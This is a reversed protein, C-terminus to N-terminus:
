EKNKEKLCIAVMPSMTHRRNFCMTNSLRRYPRCSLFFFFFSEATKGESSKDPVWSSCFGRSKTCFQVNQMNALQWCSKSQFVNSTDPQVCLEESYCLLKLEAAGLKKPCGSLKEWFQWEIKALTTQTEFPEAADSACLRSWTTNNPQQQPLLPFGSRFLCLLSILTGVTCCCRLVNLM